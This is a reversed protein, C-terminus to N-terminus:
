KLKIKLTYTIKKEYIELDGDSSHGNDDRLYFLGGILEVPNDVHAGGVSSLHKVATNIGPQCDSVFEFENINLQSRYNLFNEKDRSKDILLKTKLYIKTM